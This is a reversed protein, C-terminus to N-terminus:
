VTSDRIGQQCVLPAWSIRHLPETTRIAGSFVNHSNIGADIDLREAADQACM